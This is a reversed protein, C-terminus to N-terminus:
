TSSTSPSRRTSPRTTPTPAPAASAPASSNLANPCRSGLRVDNVIAYRMHPAGRNKATASSRGTTASTETHSTLPTKVPVSFGIMSVAMKSRTGAANRARTHPTTMAAQVAAIGTPPTTAPNATSRNPIPGVTVANPM